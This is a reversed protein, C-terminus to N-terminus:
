SLCNKFSKSVSVFKKKQTCSLPIYKIKRKYNEKGVM